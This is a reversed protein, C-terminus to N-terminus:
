LQLLYRTGKGVGTKQLAGYSVLEVLDRTTTARSAGTISIYKEASLGGKFGMPGEKFVRAIVKRQRDNLLTHYKEYFKAKNIIFEVLEISHQQADLITDAFYKVWEDINLSASSRELMTYYAKKNKNISQSLGLVAHTRCSQSLSKEVIARGIRGNGDEFPHISEFYLHAISARALAPIPNSGTPSSDNFWQIFQDMETLVRASPPAEFHVKPEDIRGSIIQMPDNHARYAGLKGIDSRGSMIMKHWSFLLDHTLPQDYTRYIDIMMEAIGIESPKVKRNDTNLGMHKRLSHQVSDRNLYEGEIESTQLAEDGMIQIILDTKDSELIHSFSGILVGSKMLFLDESSAIHRTDYTFNPWKKHQWNWNIM